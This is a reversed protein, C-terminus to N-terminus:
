FAMLFSTSSCLACAIDACMVKISAVLEKVKAEGALELLEYTWRDAPAVDTVYKPDRAITRPTLQNTEKSYEYIALHTGMASIVYSKPIQILNRDVLSFLRERMEFDTKGRTSFGDLHM